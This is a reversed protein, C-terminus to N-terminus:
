GKALSVSNKRPTRIGSIAVEAIPTGTEDTVSILFSCTRRGCKLCQAEATLLGIKGPNLYTIQSTLSVANMEESNSAAAFTFDALTFIAGGMVVDNANLHRADVPLVCKAYNEGVAAIVIGTTKVAFLDNQFLENAAEMTKM